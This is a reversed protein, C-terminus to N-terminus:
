HPTPYPDIQNFLTYITTINKDWGCMQGERSAQKDEFKSKQNVIVM